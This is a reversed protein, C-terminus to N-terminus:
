IELDQSEKVGISKILFFKEKKKKAIEERFNVLRSCKKCSIITEKLKNNNKM